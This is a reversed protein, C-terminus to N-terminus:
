MIPTVCRTASTRRRCSYCSTQLYNNYIEKIEVSEQQEYKCGVYNVIPLLKYATLNMLQICLINNRPIGCKLHKM